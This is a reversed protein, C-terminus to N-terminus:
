VIDLYSMPVDLSVSELKLQDCFKDSTSAYASLLVFMRQDTCSPGRYFLEETSKSLFGQRKFLDQIGVTFVALRERDQSVLILPIWVMSKPCVASLLMPHVPWHESYLPFGCAGYWALQSDIAGHGWTTCLTCHVPSLSRNTRNRHSPSSNRPAPSVRLSTCITTVTNRDGSKDWRQVSYVFRPCQVKIETMQGFSDTLREYFDTTLGYFAAGGTSDM